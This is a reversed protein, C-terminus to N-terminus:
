GRLSARDYCFQTAPAPASIMARLIAVAEDDFRSFNTLNLLWARM